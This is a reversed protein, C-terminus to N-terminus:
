AVDRGADALDRCFRAPPEALTRGLRTYLDAQDAAVGRALAQFVNPNLLEAALCAWVDVADPDDAPGDEFAQRAADLLRAARVEYRDLSGLDGYLTLASIEYPVDTLFGFRLGGTRLDEGRARADRLARVWEAPAAAVARAVAEPVHLPLTEFMRGGEIPVLRGIAHEGLVLQAASGINATGVREGTALDEWTVVAPTRDVYRYGGMPAALWAEVQDARALLDSPVRRLYSALAGLEYLLLQRFVWDHDMVKIRPDEGAPRGVRALGGRIEAAVRIAEHVAPGGTPPLEQLAQEMLWRSTAWRPLWPGFLALQSLRVIRDARWFLRGDPDFLQEEILDLAAGADGRREADDVARMTVVYPALEGYQSDLM